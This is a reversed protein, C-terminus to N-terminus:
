SIILKIFSSVRHCSPSLKLVVLIVALEQLTTSSIARANKPNEKM